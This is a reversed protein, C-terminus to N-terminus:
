SFNPPPSPVKLFLDSQMVDRYEFGFFRHSQLSSAVLISRSFIEGEKKDSEKEEQLLSIQSPDSLLEFATNQFFTAMLGLLVLLFVGNKLRLRQM